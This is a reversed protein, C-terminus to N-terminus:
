GALPAGCQPCFVSADDVVHGDPCRRVIVTSNPAAVEVPIPEERRAGCSTCFVIGERWPTGCSACTATAHIADAPGIARTGKPTPAPYSPAWQQPPAVPMPQSMVPQPAMYSMTPAMVPVGMLMKKNHSDAAVCGWIISGVWVFFYGVGLTVVSFPIGILTMILGGTVSSYFLGFPGFFFTLVFAVGTSKQGMVMAPAVSPTVVNNVIMPQPQPAAPAPAFPAPSPGPPPTGYPQGFQGGEAPPLVEAGYPPQPSGDGVFENM